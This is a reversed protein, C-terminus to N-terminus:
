RSEKMFTEGGIKRVVVDGKFEIDFVQSYGVAYSWRNESSYKESPAGLLEKVQARSMGTKIIPYLIAAEKPRYGIARKAKFADSAVKIHEIYDKMFARDDSLVGIDIQFVRKGKLENNAKALLYVVGAKKDVQVEGWGVNRTKVLCFRRWERSYRNYIYGHVDIYSEGSTPLESMGVLIRLGDINYIKWNKGFLVSRKIEDVTKASDLCDTNTTEGQHPVSSLGWSLGAMFCLVLFLKKM